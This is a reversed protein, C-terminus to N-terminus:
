RLKKLHFLLLDRKLIVIVLLISFIIGMYIYVAFNVTKELDTDPTTNSDPRPTPDFVNKIQEATLEPTPDVPTAKNPVLETVEVEGTEDNTRSIGDPCGGGHLCSLIVASDYDELDIGEEFVLNNPVLGSTIIGVMGVIGDDYFASMGGIVVLLAIALYTSDTM